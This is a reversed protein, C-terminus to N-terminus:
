KDLGLIIKVFEKRAYFARSISGHGSGKTRPQVLIGMKGTLSEFGKEKISNRVLEYDAKVQNFLSGDELKEALDFTGASVLISSTEQKNVFLRGCIIISRLKYWLHSKEFETDLINKPEIMTIAMTEKPIYDDGRKILPVSKLEWYKGNPAQVSSFGLGLCHELVHGAWGKNPKGNKFVTIGFKDAMPRLDEGVYKQLMKVAEDRPIVKM